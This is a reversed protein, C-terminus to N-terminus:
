GITRLMSRRAVERVSVDPDSLMEALRARTSPEDVQAIAQIVAIRVEPSPDRLSGLLREVLGDCALASMAIVAARRVSAFDGLDLPINEVQKGTAQAISDAAQKAKAESRCAMFVRAGARALERAAVLGIGTNAGTILVVRGEQSPMAFSLM